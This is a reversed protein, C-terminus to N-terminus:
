TNASKTIKFSEFMKNISSLYDLYEKGEAEYLIYYVKDNVITGREMMTTAYTDNYTAVITYAPPGGLRTNNNVEIRKFGSVNKYNEKHLEILKGESQPTSKKLTEIIIAVTQYRPLSFSTVIASKNHIVQEGISSYYDSNNDWNIPYQFQVEYTPNKYSKVPISNIFIQLVIHSFM